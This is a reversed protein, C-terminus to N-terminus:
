DLGGAQRRHLPKFDVGHAACGVLVGLLWPIPLDLM